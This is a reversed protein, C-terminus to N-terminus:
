GWSSQDRWDWPNGNPRRPVFPVSFRGPTRKEAAMVYGGASDICAVASALGSRVCDLDSGQVLRITDDASDLM